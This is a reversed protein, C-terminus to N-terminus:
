SGAEFSNTREDRISMRGHRPLIGRIPVEIFRESATATRSEASATSNLSASLGAPVVSSAEGPWTADFTATPSLSLVGAASESGLDSSAAFYWAARM